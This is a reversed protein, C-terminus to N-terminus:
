PVSEHLWNQAGAIVLSQLFYPQRQSPGCPVYTFVPLAFGCPQIAVSWAVSVTIHSPAVVIRAVLAHVNASAFADSNASAPSISTAHNSPVHCSTASAGAVSADADSPSS